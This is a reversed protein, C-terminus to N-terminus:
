KVRTRVLTGDMKLLVELLKPNESNKFEVTALTEGNEVVQHIAGESFATFFAAIAADNPGNELVYHLATEMLTVPDKDSWLPAIAPAGPILNPTGITKGTGDQLLEISNASGDAGPSQFGTWKFKAGDASDPAIHLTSFKTLYEEDIRGLDVLRELRHCGLEAAKAIPVDQAHAYPVLNLLILALFSIKM